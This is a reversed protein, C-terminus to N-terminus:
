FGSPPNILVHRLQDLLAENGFAAPIVDMKDHPFNAIKNRIRNPHRNVVVIRSRERKLAEEFADNISQDRFSYGVVIYV